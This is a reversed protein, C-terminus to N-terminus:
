RSTRSRPYWIKSAKPGHFSETCEVLRSIGGDPQEHNWEDNGQQKSERQRTLAARVFAGVVPQKTAYATRDLSLQSNFASARGPRNPTKM